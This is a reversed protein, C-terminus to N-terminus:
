DLIRDRRERIIKTTEQAADKLVPLGIATEEQDLEKAYADLRSEVRAFDKSVQELMAIVNACSARATAKAARVEARLGNLRERKEQVHQHRIRARRAIDDALKQDV